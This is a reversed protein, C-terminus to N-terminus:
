LNIWYRCKAIDAKNDRYVTELTGGNKEIIKASAINDEDCTVLVRELGLESAKELTLRLIATGCGKRRQDPRIVYGISGGITRLHENLEHRLSSKGVVKGDPRVLFFTSCPVWGIEPLQLGQKWNQLKKVLEGFPEGRYEFLWHTEPDEAQLSRFFEMYAEEMGDTLETLQLNGNEM